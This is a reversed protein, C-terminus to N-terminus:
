LVFVVLSIIYMLIFSLAVITTGIVIYSFLKRQFYVLIAIITNILFVVSSATPYLLVYWWPGIRDIGFYVSYHWPIFDGQLESQAALLWSFLLIGLSIFIGVLFVRDQWLVQSTFKKFIKQMFYNSEVFM